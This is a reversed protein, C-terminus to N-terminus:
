PLGPHFPFVVFKKAKTARRVGRRKAYNGVLQRERTAPEIEEERTRPAEMFFRQHNARHLQKNTTEQPKVTPQPEPSEPAVALLSLAGVDDGGGPIGPM